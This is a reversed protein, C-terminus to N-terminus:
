HAFSERLLCYKTQSVGHHSRIIAIKENRCDHLFFKRWAAIPLKVEFNDAEGGLTAHPKTLILTATGNWLPM